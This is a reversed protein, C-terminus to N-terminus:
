TCKYLLARYPRKPGQSSALIYGQVLHSPLPCLLVLSRALITGPHQRYQGSKHVVQDCSAGEMLRLTGHVPLGSGILYAELNTLRSWMRGVTLRWSISFYRALFRVFTMRPRFCDRVGALVIRNTLTSPMVQISGTLCRVSAQHNTESVVLHERPTYGAAAERRKLKRVRHSIHYLLTESSLVDSECMCAVRTREHAVRTQQGNQKDSVSSRSWEHHFSGFVGLAGLIRELPQKSEIAQRLRATQSM